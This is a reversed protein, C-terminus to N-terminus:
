LMGLLVRVWFWIKRPLTDRRIRDAPVLVWHQSDEPSSEPWPRVAGSVIQGSSRNVWLM